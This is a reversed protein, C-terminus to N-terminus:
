FRQTYAHCYPMKGHNQYYHQHYTEAPYFMTAERLLTAIDYGKKELLTILNSAINKENADNYFICSLYQQGIDPGQGNKQTPDHIEFFLKALAEFNVITDDYAVQVVELHGTNKYCVDEYTPNVMAGGMYGCLVKQVGQVQSFFYEVGWFCGGAFYAYRSM